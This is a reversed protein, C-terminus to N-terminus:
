IQEKSVIKTVKAITPSLVSTVTFEILFNWTILILFLFKFTNVNEVNLNEIAKAILTLACLAFIGTNLIPVLLSAVIAAVIFSKKNILKFVLGAVIGAITCKSLCTVITGLPAYQFFVAQTSPAFLVLLGNMLGLFGGSLPGFLIAGLAIPILSLNISIGGPLTIYNGIVQFVIEIALLIATGTMKKVADNKM